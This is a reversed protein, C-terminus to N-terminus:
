EGQKPFPREAVLHGGCFPCFKWDFGTDDDGIENECGTRWASRDLLWKCNHEDM